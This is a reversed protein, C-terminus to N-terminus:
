NSIIYPMKKNNPNKIHGIQVDKQQQILCYVNVLCINQSQSLKAHGNAEIVEQHHRNQVYINSL